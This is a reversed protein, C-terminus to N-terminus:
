FPQWRPRIFVFFVYAYTKCMRRLVGVAASRTCILMISTLHMNSHYENYRNRQTDNLVREAGYVQLRDGFKVCVGPPASYRRSVQRARQSDAAKQVRHEYVRPPLLQVPQDPCSQELRVPGGAPQVHRGQVLFPRIVSHTFPWTSGKKSCMTYSIRALGANHYQM